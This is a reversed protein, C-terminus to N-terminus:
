FRLKGVVEYVDLKEFTQTKVYNTSLFKMLGDFSFHVPNEIVIIKPKKRVIEALVLDYNKRDITSLHHAQIFKTASPRESLVYIFAADGWVFIPDNPKTVSKIYNGIVYSNITRSDFYNAYGEFSKRESVYDLWNKYYSLPELAFGNRFTFLLIYFAFLLPIFAWFYKRLNILLYITLLTVPPVIQLLYHLYPRNSLLAGYLSFGFWLTLFLLEKSIFKKVFLIFLILSSLSILLGRVILPNSLKALPGTDVAVYSANQFFSATLFDGLAHNVSFYLIVTGLLAMFVATPLLFVKISKSIIQKFFLRRRTSEIILIFGFLGFGFFDFLAPVKFLFATFALVGTLLLKGPTPRTEVIKLVLIAGLVIPLTFYLEANAITGELIPLSLLLSTTVAAIVSWVLTLKKDKFVISALFFVGAVSGAVFATASIKAWFLTPHIAYLLYLLPPKNDWIDRYLIAGRRMMQGLVLYIGEDGYWYPESLTPIRLLITFIILFGALWLSLRKM